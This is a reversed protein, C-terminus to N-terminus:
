IVEVVYGQPVLFVTTSPSFLSSHISSSIISLHVTLPYPISSPHPRHIFSRIILLLGARHAPFFHSTESAERM